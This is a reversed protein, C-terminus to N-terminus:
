SGSEMAEFVGEQFYMVGFWPHKTYMTFRFRGNGEDKHIVYTTGPPFWRPLPVSVGLFEWHYGTSTFRLSGDEESVCLRMRLGRGLSEILRGDGDLCKTSRVTVPARGGFYYIREWVVGNANSCPYVRVVTEIENGTYPAVPTDFIRSIQALLYGFASAEVRQMTGVYRAEADKRHVSPFRARVAAPLRGWAAAGLLRAFNPYQDLHRDRRVTGPKSERREAVDM